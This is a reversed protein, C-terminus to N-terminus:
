PAFSCFDTRGGNEAVPLVCLFNFISFKYVTLNESQVLGKFFYFLLFFNCLLVECQPVLDHTTNLILKLPKFVFCVFLFGWFLIGRIFEM